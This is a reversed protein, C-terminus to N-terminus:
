EFRVARMGNLTVLLSVGVDALIALWLSTGGLLALAMFILKTGLSFVINQAMLRRVFRAIRLAYPLQHLDNAMLVVDATEMAQASGAGGMAIGVNATALAPTDNIGDGVMAVTHYQRQLAQLATVKDAPLLHSRVEAIGVAAGVAQAVTANDGTLMIPTINLDKLQQVVAGSEPRIMDAVGILGRVRDGDCLLMTTQGAAELAGVQECIALPHPHEADFLAHNGVTILKGGVQGQVGRGALTLVSEAAAYTSTLSRQEAAQTVARALPHASRREVAAALALVDDCLACDIGTVCDLARSTTVTPEGRTLTGTKDFALAQVKGLTELHLGGKILVGHRAAATIGSIITVPASIVLACPCAIVLLTLARYLWVAWVGGLLLPPLIAVLLALVVVGPTYWRAFEDILRQSNARSRQAEEVMRVIRSLTTDASLHTVRMRLAGDGNITGAFVPDGVARHIPLSEGTIPAQNVGSSGATIVGDLAIREGPKILLIDGRQVQAVPVTEEREGVLRLAQAPALDLLSRLSQRARDATYGELAEGIAFLFIVTAGELLDGLAVAGVAAITMLLNITFTHNIRLAQLGSRAIPWAAIAMAAIFLSHRLPASVKLLTLLLGVIILAGGILALRTEPRRYLYIGFGRVGGPSPQSRDPTNEPTAVSYGLATVRAEVAAPAVDGAVRLTCTAFDVEAMQVGALRRVGDGLTQACATCDMGNITYTQM